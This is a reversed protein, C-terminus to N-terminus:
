QHKQRQNINPTNLHIEVLLFIFGENNARHNINYAQVRFIEM